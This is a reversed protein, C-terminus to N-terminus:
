FLNSENKLKLEAQSSAKDKKKDNKRTHAGKSPGKRPQLQRQKHSQCGDKPPESRAAVDSREVSAATSLTQEMSLLLGAVWSSIFTLSETYLCKLSSYAYGTQCPARRSRSAIARGRTWPATARDIRRAGKWVELDSNNWCSFQGDSRQLRSIKQIPNNCLMNCVRGGGSSEQKSGNADVFMVRERRLGLFSIRGRTCVLLYTLDKKKREASRQFVRGACNCFM